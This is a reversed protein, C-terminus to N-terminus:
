RSEVKIRELLAALDGATSLPLAREKAEMQLEVWDPGELLSWRLGHELCRAAESLDSSPTLRGSALLEALRGRAEAHRDKFRFLKRFKRM